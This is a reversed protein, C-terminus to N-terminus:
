KTRVSLGIGGNSMVAGEVPGNALAEKVAAKDVSVVTKSKKFQEPIAGEDQIVVSPPIRRLSLTWDPAEIKKLDAAAMASAILERKKDHREEMRSLRAALEAMREKIGLGLIRDNDASRMLAIIQEQLSTEGELTDLLAREDEELEPFHALLRERTLRYEQVSAGVAIPDTRM